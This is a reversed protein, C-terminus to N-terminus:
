LSYVLTRAVLVVPFRGFRRWGPAYPKKKGKPGTGYAGFPKEQETDLFKKKHANQPEFRSSAHMYIPLRTSEFIPASMKCSIYLLITQSIKSTFSQGVHYHCDEQVKFQEVRPFSCTDIDLAVQIDHLWAYTLRREM